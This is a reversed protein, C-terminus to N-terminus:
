KCSKKYKNINKEEVTVKSTTRKCIDTYLFKDVKTDGNFYESRWNSYVIYMMGEEFEFGCDGNGIGTIIQIMETRSKGKYITRIKFTFKNFYYNISTDTGILKYPVTIREQHIVKGLFVLDSNKLAKNISTKGVCNCAFSSSKWFMLFLLSVFFIMEKNKRM